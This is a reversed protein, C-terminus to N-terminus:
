RITQLYPHGGQYLELRQRIEVELDPDKARQLAMSATQAAADFRGASAYAAALADPASPDDPGAVVVARQALAIAEDPSCPTSRATNRWCCKLRM